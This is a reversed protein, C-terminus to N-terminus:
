AIQTQFSSSNIKSPPFWSTDIQFHRDNFALEQKLKEPNHITVTNRSYSIKGDSDLQSFANSVTVNTLGLTDAIIGQTLPVEFTKFDSDHSHLRLRAHLELIFNAIITVAPSRGSMKIRDMLIAKEMMSISFLLTSLRPSHSFIDELSKKPFPSIVVDSATMTDNFSAKLALDDMGVIEGPLYIRLVKRQGNHLDVYRYIWGAKVVYLNDSFNQLHLKVRSKFRLENKELNRLLSEEDQTLDIYYNFREVLSSFNKDEQV